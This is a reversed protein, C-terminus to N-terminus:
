TLIRRSQEPVLSIRQSVKRLFTIIFKLNHKAPRVKSPDDAVHSRGFQVFSIKSDEAFIYTTTVPCFYKNISFLLESNAISFSAKRGYSTTTSFRGYNGSFKIGTLSINKEAYGIFM